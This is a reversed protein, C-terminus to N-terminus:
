RPAASDMSQTIAELAAVTDIMQSTPIHFPARGEVADAFAELEGRLADVPEFEVHQPKSGSKRLVFDTEGIAGASGETGFVHVRWLFPSPRVSCLVGSAGGEFELIVSVTDVPHPAKRYQVLLTQVRRVPGALNVLADLMHFGAATMSGGPSEGPADRWSAHHQRSVENSSNGEVHLVKGIGGGAVVRQLERMSPWLRKDHGVGLVVGARQCADVARQAESKSLALPKECFVHKGAGASAVVHDIHTSHPTALVLARVASDRLVAAFDDTVEFGHQAGFERVAQPHRVVGRVFRLRDSRGQVANVLAKGWRGLGVIAADVM